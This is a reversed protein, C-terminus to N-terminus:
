STLIWRVVLDRIRRYEAEDYQMNAICFRGDRMNTCFMSDQMNACDHIFLSNVIKISWSVSFSNTSEGSDEIRICFNNATARQAAVVYESDYAGDSFLVNRSRHIDQSRYINESYYINDSEAFNLSDKQRETTTYNIENWAALIDQLNNLPKPQRIGMENTRANDLRMFKSPNASQAWTPQNDVADFVQQPLRVDFAFKQMAQELSLPNQYGFVQGVIKDLITKAEIANM